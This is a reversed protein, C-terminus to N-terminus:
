AAVNFHYRLGASTVLQDQGDQGYRHSEGYHEVRITIKRAAAYSAIETLAEHLWPQVANAPIVLIFAKRKIETLQVSVSGDAQQIAAGNFAALDDVMRILDAQTRDQSQYTPATLDVSRIMTALGNAFSAIVPFNDPLNAGFAQRIKRGRAFNDMMWVRDEGESNEQRPKSTWLPVVACAKRQFHGLPTLLEYKLVLWLRHDAAQWDLFLRRQGLRAQWGPQGSCAEALWYDMRKQIFPGFFVSTSIDLMLDDSLSKVTQGPLLEELLQDLLQISDSEAILGSLGDPKITLGSENALYILPSLMSVEAATRDLSSKLKIECVSCQLLTLLALGFVLTLPLVLAAELSLSGRCSRLNSFRAM